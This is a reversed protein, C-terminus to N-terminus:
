KIAYKKMTSATEQKRGEGERHTNRPVTYFVVLATPGFFLEWVIYKNM